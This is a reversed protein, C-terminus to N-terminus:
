DFGKQYSDPFYLSMASEIKALEVCRLAIFIIKIHKIKCEIKERKAFFPSNNM